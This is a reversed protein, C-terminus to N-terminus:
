LERFYKCEKPKDVYEASRKKANCYYDFKLHTCKRCNAKGSKCWVKRQKVHIITSTNVGTSMGKM